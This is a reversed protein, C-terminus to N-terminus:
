QLVFYEAILYYPAAWDSIEPDLFAFGDFSRASALATCTGPCSELFFTVKKDSGTLEMWSLSEFQSEVNFLLVLHRKYCSRTEAAQSM